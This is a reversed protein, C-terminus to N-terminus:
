EVRTVYVGIEAIHKRTFQQGKHQMRHKAIYYIVRNSLTEASRVHNEDFRFLVGDGPQLNRLARPIAGPRPQSRWNNTGTAGTGNDGLRARRSALAQEREESM